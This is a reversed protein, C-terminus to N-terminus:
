GRYFDLSQYYFAHLFGLKYLRKNEETSHLMAWAWLARGSRGNCDIFPHLKEYQCHIDFPSTRFMQSLLRGLDGGVRPGGQIPTHKGVRVNMGARDRLKAGPQYVDVFKELDKISIEKLSIFWNHENKEAVTPPRLIGEIMNSEAVFSGTLESEEINQMLFSLEDDTFIDPKKM